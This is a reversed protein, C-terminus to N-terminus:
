CVDVDVYMLGLVLVLATMLVTMGQSTRGCGYVTVGEQVGM